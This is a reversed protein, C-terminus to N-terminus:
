WITREIYAPASTFPTPLMVGKIAATLPTKVSHMFHKNFAPASGFTGSSTHNEVTYM